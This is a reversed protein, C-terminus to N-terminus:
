GQAEQEAAIAAMGLSARAQSLEKAAPRLQRIVLASHDYELLTDLHSIVSNLEDVICRISQPLAGEYQPRM